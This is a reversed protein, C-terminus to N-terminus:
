MNRGSIMSYVFSSPNGDRGAQVQGDQKGIIVVNASSIIKAGTEVDGLIIVSTEAEIIQGRKINGIIFLGEDMPSYIKNEETKETVGNDIYTNIGLKNLAEQLYCTDQKSVDEGELMIRIASHKGLTRKNINKLGNEITGVVEKIDAGPSIILRLGQQNGKIVVPSSM